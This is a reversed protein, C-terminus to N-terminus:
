FVYSSRLIFSILAEEYLIVVIFSLLSFDGCMRFADEFKNPSQKTTSVDRFNSFMECFVAISSVVVAAITKKIDLQINDKREM